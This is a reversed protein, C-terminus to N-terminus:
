GQPPYREFQPLAHANEMWGIREATQVHVRAPLADPEDLTATCVDTMGPFVAPNTYFLSSGCTGCFHRQANESSAYATTEGEITLRDNPFLAWSVMPAGVQRRCDTCHCLGHYLPEGRVEYRIAGCHCGGTLM